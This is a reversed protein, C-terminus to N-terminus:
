IEGLACIMSTPVNEQMYVNFVYVYRFARPSRSNCCCEIFLSSCHSDQIVGIRSFFFHLCTGPPPPLPSVQSWPKDLFLQFTFTILCFFCWYELTIAMKTTGEPRELRMTPTILRYQM